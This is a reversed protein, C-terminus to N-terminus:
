PRFLGQESPCLHYKPDVCVNVKEIITKTKILGQYLEVSVCQLTPEDYVVTIYIYINSYKHNYQGCNTYM